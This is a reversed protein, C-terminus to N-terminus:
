ESGGRVHVVALIVLLVVVVGAIPLYPVGGDRTEQTSEMGTESINFMSQQGYNVRLQYDDREVNDLTMTGCDEIVKQNQSYITYNQLLIGQVEGVAPSGSDTEACMNVNLTENAFSYSELSVNEVENSFESYDVVYSYTDFVEGDASLETTVRFETLTEPATTNFYLQEFVNSNSLRTITKAKNMIEDGDMTEVVVQADVGVASPYTYHDASAGAVLGVSLEEGEPIYPRNVSTKRIRSTNGERIIRNRYISQTEGGSAVEIKVAYAGPDEPNAVEVPVTTGGSPVQTSTIYTDIQNTCATDDWECVTVEVNASETSSGTNDIVVEGSVTDMSPRTFVGVPGTLSPWKTGNFNLTDPDWDGVVQNVGTFVTQTRSISLQPFSGSGSVSFTDYSPTSYIFPLGSVPTRNTKFYAEVRYDGGKLDEPLTYEYDIEESNGPKLNIGTIKDQHFVNDEDSKQSPYYPEEGRVVNVVIYGNAIPREDSNAPSLEVDLQEGPTLEGSEEIDVKLDGSYGAIQTASVSTVMLIAVTALILTKRFNMTYVIKSIPLGRMYFLARDIGPSFSQLGKLQSIKRM